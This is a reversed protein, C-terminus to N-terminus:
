ASFDGFRSRSSDERRVNGPVTLRLAASHRIKRGPADLPVLASIGPRAFTDLSAAGIAFVVVFTDSIAVVVSSKAPFFLPAPAITKAAPASGVVLTTGETM